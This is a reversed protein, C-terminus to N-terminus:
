LTSEKEPPVQTYNSYNKVNEQKFKDWDNTGIASQLQWLEREDSPAYRVAWEIHQKPSLGCGEALQEVEDLFPSLSAPKGDFKPAAHHNRTPMKSVPVTAPVVNDPM